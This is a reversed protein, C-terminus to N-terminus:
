RDPINCKSKCSFITLKSNPNKKLYNKIIQDVILKQFFKTERQMSLIWTNIKINVSQTDDSEECVISM